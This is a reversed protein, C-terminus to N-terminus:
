SLSKAFKICEEISQSPSVKYKIGQPLYSATTKGITIAVYTENWKYLSFFCNITSPSSFIIISYDPIKIAKDLKNCTTEYTILEDININADKLIQTLNSVIKKARIYLVKKNLLDNKIEEAFDDGHSSKGVFKSIGGEKKIILHTKQAIAYSPINKWTKNFSNISYIANKSTFILADYQRLNIEQPLYKINLLPINNIGEVKMDNLIFIEKV